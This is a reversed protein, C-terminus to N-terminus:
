QALKWVKIVYSSAVDDQALEQSAESIAAALEDLSTIGADQLQQMVEEASVPKDVTIGVTDAM